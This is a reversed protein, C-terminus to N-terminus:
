LIKITEFQMKSQWFVQVLVQVDSFNSGIVLTLYILIDHLVWEGGM